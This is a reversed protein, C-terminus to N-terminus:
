QKWYCKKNKKPHTGRYQNPPPCFLSLSPATPLRSKYKLVLFSTPDWRWWLWRLVSVRGLVLMLSHGGRLWNCHLLLGVTSLYHQVYSRGAGVKKSCGRCPAKFSALQKEVSGSREVKKPDFPVRCLPCLPSTVQLCPQLCEGCFRSFCCFCFRWSLTDLKDCFSGFVTFSTNMDPHVSWNRSSTSQCYLSKM